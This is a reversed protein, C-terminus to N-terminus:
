KFFDSLRRYSSEGVESCHGSANQADEPSVERFAIQTDSPLAPSAWFAEAGYRVEQKIEKFDKHFGVNQCLM